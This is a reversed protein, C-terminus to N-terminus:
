GNGSQRAGCSARPDSELALRIATMLVKENDENALLCCM